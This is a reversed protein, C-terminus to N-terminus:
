LGNSKVSDSDQVPKEQDQQQHLELSPTMDTVDTVVSDSPQAPEHHNMEVHDDEDSSYGAVINHNSFEVIPEDEPQQQQREQQEKLEAVQQKEQAEKLIEEITRTPDESLPRRRKYFLLYAATTKVDNVDVKSVHSDDFNYWNGDEFNQAFSTYHGGGLGGYHNDVGYLDYVLRDEDKVSAHDEISLVRDTLDLESTPFDILADIKDRWTRSHSFRKLHVVMIEPMRWLDFKKTARQHKKCKPCYWLDEESLEEEKTFEDLCDSLTVQKKQQATMDEDNPDGLDHMDNWADTCVGSDNSHHRAVGFLQQAKKPTWELLIGEGQRIITSPPCAVKRKPFAPAPPTPLAPPSPPTPGILPSIPKNSNSSFRDSNDSCFSINDISNRDNADPQNTASFLAAADEVQDDEDEDEIRSPLVMSDEMDTDKEQQAEVQDQQEDDSSLEDQQKLYAELQEQEAKAREALDVLGNWNQVNPLLEEPGRSYSRPASFVKVAFLNSMPEIKKGGAATVAAATHILNQHNPVATADIDMDDQDGLETTSELETIEDQREQELEVQQQEQQVVTDYGPPQETDDEFIENDQLTQSEEELSENDLMNKQQDEKVEEFLKFQTYREVHASVLHYLVDFKNADKRPVALIIPDGFQDIREGSYTDTKGVTACYVPFVILQNEDIPQNEELDDELQSYRNYSYRAKKKPLPPVPGPLQYVYIIDSSGITAVPEYQPFVKYIKHSFLEVVLLSNPDDVSMMKAVEKQLHAISAEKSLTVVMKQLQQSPDYPVYVVNTKSKKKIPLPLSLYMFPDFTVSVNTCEECILRSKFQGQFLDVIVSDNRARHYDWSKQAIETDKMGDFDPLEIYPKKIIRNLDEHLGDLLFALLEQTDHQQYGSFSSNFRGITYKFDRPAFSGATGSWLHQILQGYAEAVQGKMGLPNDRNLDTKYNGALFWKTLQPTNSLCQLASNMFCTNGLNQLGCVGRTHRPPPPPPPSTTSSSTTLNNFGNAFVSSTSSVSSSDSSKTTPQQQQQDSPFKGTSKDKVEVAVLSVGSFALAADQQDLNWGTAQNVVQVSVTPVSLTDPESKLIWAQMDTDPTLDFANKVANVFDAVLSTQSLTIIPCRTLQSPHSSNEIFYLKFQPPYMDITKGDDNTIILRQIPEAEDRSGYWAVLETWAQEPVAFVDEDLELDEALRGNQLITRNDIPGPPAGEGILRVEPQASSMRACYKQWRNFWAKSILCWTTGDQLHQEQLQKILDVQEKPDVQESIQEENTSSERARKTSVPSKDRESDSM